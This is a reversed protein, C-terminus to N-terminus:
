ARAPGVSLNGLHRNMGRLRGGADAFCSITLFYEEEIKRRIEFITDVLSIVKSQCVRSTEWLIRLNSAPKPSEWRCGLSGPPELSHNQTKSIHTDLCAGIAWVNRHARDTRASNSTLPQYGHRTSIHAAFGVLYRSTTDPLPRAGCSNGNGTTPSVLM